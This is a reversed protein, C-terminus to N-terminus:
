ARIPWPPRKLMARNGNIHIEPRVHGDLIYEWELPLRACLEDRVDRPLDQAGTVYVAQAGLRLECMRAYETYLEVGIWDPAVERPTLIWDNLYQCAYGTTGTGFCPDLVVGGEEPLSIDIARAILEPPKKAGHLMFPFQKVARSDNNIPWYDRLNVRETNPRKGRMRWYDLLAYDKAREVNYIHMVSQSKRAWIVVENASVMKEMKRNPFSNPKIWSVWQVIYFGLAKLALHMAPINHFTGTAFLSGQPKLVRRCATLQERIFSDYDDIVDWAAHFDTWAQAIISESMDYQPVLSEAKGTNYPWDAFIVDVSEVEVHKLAEVAPGCYLESM